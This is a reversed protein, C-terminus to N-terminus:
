GFTDGTCARGGGRTCGDVARENRQGQGNGGRKERRPEGKEGNKATGVRGEKETAQAIQVCAVAAYLAKIVDTSLNSLMAFTPM